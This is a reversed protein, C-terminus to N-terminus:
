QANPSKETQSKAPMADSSAWHIAEEILVTCEEESLESFAQKIKTVASKFLYTRVAKEVFQSLGDKKDGDQSLLHPQVSENIETSVVIDWRVTNM